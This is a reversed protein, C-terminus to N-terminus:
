FLRMVLTGPVDVLRRLRFLQEILHPYTATGISFAAHYGAFRMLEQLLVELKEPDSGISGFERRFAFYIEDGREQKSAQTRLALYDRMFSDFTRESRYFFREIKSWYNEYLRTQDRDPLRMLVFNRILDSQSLDMGTSNLSEFVLQPDDTARDLTVDVVMLRGVGRYVLNPSVGSATRLQERFFEYNERIRESGQGPIETGDVLAELTERDRRRLVLKHFREGDEQVNKLFYADLRKPTPDDDKGRWGAEQIHDRLAVLLLTLTTLRQQGDVLLWRTFGASTDGTSIYVFSGLFHGRESTDRAIETVDKWLQDCEAETWSYDRQFVPIVFQTIGNIIKTFPRDIAKMGPSGM